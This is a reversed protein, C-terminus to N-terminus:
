TFLSTFVIGTGRKNVTSPLLWLLHILVTVMNKNVPREFIKIFVHYGTVSPEICFCEMLQAPTRLDFNM